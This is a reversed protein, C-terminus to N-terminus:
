ACPSVKLWLWLGQHYDESRAPVTTEQAQQPYITLNVQALAVRM